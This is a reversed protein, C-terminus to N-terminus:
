LISVGQNELLEILSILPLGILTNPDKGELREFLAIGLGESKFSGACYFPQEKDIYNCIQTYSLAKFHVTFPEVIAEQKANVGNHVALGTYFTIAKGSASSLQQIATERNLPKGIIKGDIVAVQDSGIVISDPHQVLGAAAKSHALRLVLERPSENALPTEDVDPSCCIFPLQLKQLLQQRFPSTSALVIQASM